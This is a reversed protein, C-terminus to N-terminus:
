LALVEGSVDVNDNQAVELRREDLDVLVVLGNQKEPDGVGRAKGLDQAFRRGTLVGASLHLPSATAALANCAQNPSLSAGHPDGKHM